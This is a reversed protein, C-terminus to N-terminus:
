RRAVFSGEEVLRGHVVKVREMLMEVLGERWHEPGEM